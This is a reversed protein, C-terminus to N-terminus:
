GFPPTAVPARPVRSLRVRVAENPRAIRVSFTLEADAVTALPGSVSSAADLRVHLRLVLSRLLGDEGIRVIMTGARVFRELADEGFAGLARLGAAENFELADMAGAIGDLSAAARIPSVVVIEGSSGTRVVRPAEAWGDFGLGHLVRPAEVASSESRAPLEYFAGESVVFARGDVAVFRVTARAAGAV